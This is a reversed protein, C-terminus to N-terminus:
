GRSETSFGGEPSLTGTDKSRTIAMCRAQLAKFEERKGPHIRQRAFGEIESM